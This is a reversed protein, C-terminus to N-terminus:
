DGEFLQQVVDDNPVERLDDDLRLVLTSNGAVSPGRGVALYMLSWARSPSSSRWFIFGFVFRVGRKAM